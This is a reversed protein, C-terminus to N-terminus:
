ETWDMEGFHILVAIQNELLHFADIDRWGHEFIGGSKEAGM